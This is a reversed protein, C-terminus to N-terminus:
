MSLCHCCKLFSRHNADDSCTGLCDLHRRHDPSETLGSPCATDQHGCRLMTVQEILHQLPKPEPNIVIHIQHGLPLLQRGQNPPHQGQKIPQQGRLSGIDHQSLPIRCSDKYSGQSCEMAPDRETM